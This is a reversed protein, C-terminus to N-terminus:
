QALAAEIDSDQVFGDGIVVKMGRGLLTFSPLGISTAQPDVYRHTVSFDTDAIVPHSLGFRNAWDQLEAESPTAYSSNEGM